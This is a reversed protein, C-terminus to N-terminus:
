GFKIETGNSLMIVHQVSPVGKNDIEHRETAFSGKRKYLLEAARNIDSHEPNVYVTITQGNVVVEREVQLTGMVMDSLRQDIETETLIGTAAKAVIDKRVDNIIEETSRLIDKLLLAITPKRLLAKGKVSATIRTSDPYVHMYADIHSRTEMYKAVFLQHKPKLTSFEQRTFPNNDAM